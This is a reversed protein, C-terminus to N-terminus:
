AAIVLRDRGQKKALYLATDAMELLKKQNLPQSQTETCALGMSATIKLFDDGVPVRLKRIENQIREAISRADPARTRNLVIGFEEGGYRCPVDVTRCCARLTIGMARLVEDGIGHGHKDNVSKFFDLDIMLLSCPNAYRALDAMAVGLGTDFAARNGLGTLPDITSNERLLDILKKNRLSSRIRARLEIAEFPKTIYDSGGADLARAIQYVSKDGTIFIVPIDRTSEAEKLQRCVDIGNATPMEIDLLILDPQNKVALEMAADPNHAHLVQDVVGELYLEILPHVTEDDDILLLSAPKANM